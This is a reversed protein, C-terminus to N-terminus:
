LIDLCDVYKQSYGKKQTKKTLLPSPRDWVGSTSEEQYHPNCPGSVRYAGTSWGFWLSLYGVRSMDACRLTPNDSSKQLDTQLIISSQNKNM